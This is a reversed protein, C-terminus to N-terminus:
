VDIRATCSAANHKSTYLFENDRQVLAESHIKLSNSTHLLDLFRGKLRARVEAVHDSADVDLADTDISPGASDCNDALKADLRKNRTDVRDEIDHWRLKAADKEKDGSLKTIGEIKATVCECGEGHSASTLFRVLRINKQEAAECRAIVASLNDATSDRRVVSDSEGRGGFYSSIDVSDRNLAVRLARNEAILAKNDEQLQNVKDEAARVSELEVQREGLIAKLQQNEIQAKSNAEEVEALHAILTGYEDTLHRNEMILRKLHEKQLDMVERRMQLERSHQELWEEHAFMQTEIVPDGGVITINRLRKEKSPRKAKNRRNSPGSTLEFADRVDRAEVASKTRYKKHEHHLLIHRSPEISGVEGRCPSFQSEKLVKDHCVSTETSEVLTSHELAESSEPASGPREHNSFENSSEIQNNSICKPKLFDTTPPILKLLLPSCFMGHGVRCDFYKIGMIHGDTTATGLPGLNDLEIGVREGRFGQVEGVYKVTGILQRDRSCYIVRDKVRFRNRDM